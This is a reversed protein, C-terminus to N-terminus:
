NGHNRGSNYDKFQGFVHMKQLKTSVEALVTFRNFCNVYISRFIKMATKWFIIHNIRTHAVTWSINAILIDFIISVWYFYLIKLVHLWLMTFLFMKRFRMVLHKSLKLIMLWSPFMFVVCIVRNKEHVKEARDAQLM